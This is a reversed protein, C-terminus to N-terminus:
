DLDLEPAAKKLRNLSSQVKNHLGMAEGRGQDYAKFGQMVAGHVQSIGLDKLAREIAGYARRAVGMTHDLQGASKVAHNWMHGITRKGQRFHEQFSRNWM